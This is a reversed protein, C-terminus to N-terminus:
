SRDKIGTLMSVLRMRIDEEVMEALEKISM